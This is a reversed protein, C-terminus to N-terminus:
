RGSRSVRAASEEKRVFANYRKQVEAPTLMGSKKVVPHPVKKALLVDWRIHRGALFEFDGNFTTGGRVRGRHYAYVLMVQQRTNLVYVLGEGQRFESPVMMWESGAPAAGGQAHAPARESTAWSTVLATLIVVLLTPLAGRLAGTKM